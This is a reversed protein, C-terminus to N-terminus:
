SQDLQLALSISQKSSQLCGIIKDVEQTELPWKLERLKLKNVLRTGKRPQLKDIVRSLQTSCDKLSRLMAPSSLLTAVDKQTSRKNVNEFIEKLSETENRLREIDKEANKVAILYEYCSSTVKKALQIIGIIGAVPGVTEM